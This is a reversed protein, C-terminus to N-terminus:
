VIEKVKKFFVELSFQKAKKTANKSVQKQLNVNSFIEATKKVLQSQERWLFGDVGDSVIEKHGGANYAFVVTGSAMAEVLSIGFHEVKQPYKIEDVGFGSATWFIKAKAYYNKVIEYDVSTYIEIPFGESLRILNKVYKDAGIDAGGILILKFNQFEKHKVYLKKFASVLVDQRKAQALQSFRGVSLIIDEKTKSAKFDSVSVPPYLVISNIGYENDIVSKTFNSNCIVEKVRFLKMKNILSRGDVGKFPVQFHIFNRRASMLPISGDSVWFCLDYGNGKRIDHVINIKKLSLGFRSELKDKISTDHWFLDVNYGLKNLAIAFCLSYREGGGFTDLYPNYIAAKM